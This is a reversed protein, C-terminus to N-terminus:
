GPCDRNQPSQGPWDVLNDRNPMWDALITGCLPTALSLPARPRVIFHRGKWVEFKSVIPRIQFTYLDVNVRDVSARPRRVTRSGHLHFLHFLGLVSEQQSASAQLKWWSRYVQDLEPGHLPRTIGPPQSYVRRGFEWMSSHLFVLVAFSGGWVRAVHLLM